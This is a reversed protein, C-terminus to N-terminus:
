ERHCSCCFSMDMLYVLCHASDVCCRVDDDKILRLGILVEEYTGTVVEMEVVHTQKTASHLGKTEKDLYRFTEFFVLLVRM